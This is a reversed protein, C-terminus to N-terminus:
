GLAEAVDVVPWDALYHLVVAARQQAPLRALAAHPDMRQAVGITPDTGAPPEPLARRHREAFRVADRIAM